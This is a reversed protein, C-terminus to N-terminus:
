AVRVVLAYSQPQVIRNARVIIEVTSAPIDNWIVQEVNNYRDFETSTPVM